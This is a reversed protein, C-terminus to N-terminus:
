LPGADSSMWGTWAASSRGSVSRSHPAALVSLIGQSAGIARPGVGALCLGPGQLVWKARIVPVVDGM